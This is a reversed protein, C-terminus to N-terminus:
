QREYFFCFIAGYFVPRHYSLFLVVRYWGFEGQSFRLDCSLGGYRPSVDKRGFLPQYPSRRKEKRVASVGTHKVRRRNESASASFSSRRTTAKIIFIRNKIM